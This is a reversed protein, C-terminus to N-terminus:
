LRQSWEKLVFYLITLTTFRSYFTCSMELVRNIIKYFSDCGCCGSCGACRCSCSCWACCSCSM